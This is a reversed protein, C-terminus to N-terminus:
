RRLPASRTRDVPCSCWALRRCRSRTDAECALPGAIASVELTKYGPKTVRVRYYAFPLRVRLPSPGFPEWDGSMDGYNKLETQAGAPETDIAFDLWGQRVRAIDEPAYAEAARALRVAHITRGTLNM